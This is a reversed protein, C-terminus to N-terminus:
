RRRDGGSSAGVKSALSGFLYMEAALIAFVFFSIADIRVDLWENM